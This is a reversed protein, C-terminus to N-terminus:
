GTRRKKSVMEEVLALLKRRESPPFSDMIHQRARLGLAIQDSALATDLLEKLRDADKTHLIFGTDGVIEPLAAVSSAIPVCECLMAECPASPFGEWISLQLYFRHRAYFGPLEEYPIFGYLKVNPPVREYKMAPTNGLITFRCQPFRDAMQFILDIGKRHFNPVNMQAATIFSGATKLVECRFRQPDYGYAIVTYPTRIGPFLGRYGQMVPDQPDSTYRHESEVLSEDVPALHDALQLSWRTVPGLPWRTFNGYGISPFKVCDTGGLVLLVPKRFVKGFLCPLVSHYGAFQCVIISSGPVTRLLFFLQNLLSFPTIWKRKPKFHFVSVEFAESLLTIDNRAFSVLVPTSYVLRRKPGPKAGM